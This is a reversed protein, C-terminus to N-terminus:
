QKIWWKTADPPEQPSLVLFTLCMILKSLCCSFAGATQKAPNCGATESATQESRDDRKYLKEEMM